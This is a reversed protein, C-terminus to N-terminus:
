NEIPLPDGLVPTPRTVNVDIWAAVTAAAERLSWWTQSSATYTRRDAVVGV